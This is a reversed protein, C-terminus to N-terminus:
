SRWDHPDNVMSVPIIIIDTRPVNSDTSPRLAMTSGCNSCFSRTLIRGSATGSDKYERLFDSGETVVVNESRFFTNALFASGSSKKCNLCHCITFTFPDGTVKLKVNKCLCSANRTTM